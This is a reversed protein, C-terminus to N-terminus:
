NILTTTVKICVYLDFVCTINPIPLKLRLGLMLQINKTQYSILITTTFLTLLGSQILHGCFFIVFCTCCMYWRSLVPNYKVLFLLCDLKLNSRKRKAQTILSEGLQTLTLVSSLEVRAWSIKVLGLTQQRGASPSCSAAAAGSEYARWEFGHPLSGAISDLFTSFVVTQM